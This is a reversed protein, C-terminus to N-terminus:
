SRRVPRRFQQGYWEKGRQNAPQWGAEILSRFLAHHAAVAAQDGQHPTVDPRTEFVPSEGALYTGAPGSAEAIFKYRASRYWQRSSLWSAFLHADDVLACAIICADWNGPAPQAQQPQGCRLCFDADDPLQTACSPCIV